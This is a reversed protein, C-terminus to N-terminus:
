SLLPNGTPGNFPSNLISLVGVAAGGPILLPNVANTGTKSFANWDPVSSAPSPAAAFKAQTASPGSYAPAQFSDSLLSSISSASWIAGGSAALWRGSSPSRFRPSEGKLWEHTAPNLNAHSWLAPFGSGYTFSVQKCVPNHCQHHVAAVLLAIVKAALTPAHLGWQPNLYPSLRPRHAPTRLLDEAQVSAPCDHAPFRCQQCHHDNRLLGALASMTFSTSGQCHIVVKIKPCGTERVVTRVAQPHDYVAAQDLTWWNPKLDISARWNELWVDYGRDVLYDVLTTRVPARFINARVGAGHVLMGPGKTPM